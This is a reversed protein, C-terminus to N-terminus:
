ETPAPPTPNDEQKNRPLFLEIKDVVQHVPNVAVPLSFFIDYQQMFEQNNDFDDWILPMETCFHWVRLIRLKHLLHFFEAATDWYQKKLRARTESITEDIKPRPDEIIKHVVLLDIPVDQQNWIKNLWIMKQSLPQVTPLEKLDIINLYPLGFEKVKKEFWEPIVLPLNPSFLGYAISDDATVDTSLVLAPLLGRHIKVYRLLELFNHIGANKKKGVALDPQTCLLNDLVLYQSRSPAGPKHGHEPKGFSIGGTVIKSLFVARLEKGHPCTNLYTALAMTPDAHKTLAEQKIRPIQKLFDLFAFYLTNPQPEKDSAIQDESKLLQPEAGEPKPMFIEEIKHAHAKPQDLSFSEEDFQVLVATYAISRLEESLLLIYLKMDELYPGLSATNCAILYFDDDFFLFRGLTQRGMAGTVENAKPLLFDPNKNLQSKGTLPNLDVRRPVKIIFANINIDKRGMADLSTRLDAVYKKGAADDLIIVTVQNNEFLRNNAELINLQYQDFLERLQYSAVKQEKTTFPPIFRGNDIGVNAPITKETKRRQGVFLGRKTGERMLQTDTLSSTNVEQPALM